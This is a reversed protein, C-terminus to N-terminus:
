QSWLATGQQEGSSYTESIQGLVSNAQQVASTFEAQAANYRAFVQNMSDLTSGAMSATSAKFNAVLEEGTSTLQNAVNNTDDIAAQVASFQVSFTSM